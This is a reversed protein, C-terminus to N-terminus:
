YFTQRRLSVLIHFRRAVVGALTLHKHARAAEVRDTFVSVANHAWLQAFEVVWISGGLVSVSHCSGWVLDGLHRLGGLHAESHLRRLLTGVRVHESLIIVIRHVCLNLHVRVEV